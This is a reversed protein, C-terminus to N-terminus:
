DVEPTAVSAEELAAVRAGLQNALVESVDDMTTADSLADVLERALGDPLEARLAARNPIPHDSDRVHPLIALLTAQTVFVSLHAGDSCHHM